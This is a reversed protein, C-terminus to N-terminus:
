LLSPPTSFADGKFTTVPVSVKFAAGVICFQPSNASVVRQRTIVNLLRRPPSTEFISNLENTSLGSQFFVAVFPISSQRSGISFSSHLLYLTCTIVCETMGSDVCVCFFQLCRPICASHHSVSAFRDGSM